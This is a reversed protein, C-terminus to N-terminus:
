NFRHQINSDCYYYVVPILKNNKKLFFPSAQIGPKYKASIDPLLMFFVVLLIINIFIYKYM